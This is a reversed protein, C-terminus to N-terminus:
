GEELEYLWEEVYVKKADALQNAYYAKLKDIMTKDTKYVFALVDTLDSFESMIESFDWIDNLKEDFRKEFGKRADKLTKYENGYDDFYM